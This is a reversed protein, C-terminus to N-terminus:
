LLKTAGHQMDYATMPSLNDPKEKNKLEIKKPPTKYCSYNAKWASIAGVAWVAVSCTGAMLSISTGAIDEPKSMLERESPNGIGSTTNKYHGEGSKPM